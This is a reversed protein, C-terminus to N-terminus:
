LILGAAIAGVVALAAVADRYSLRPRSPALPTVGGRADVAAAFERARRAAVTLAAILIGVAEGVLAKLHRRPRNSTRLKRAAALTRTEDILLPLGRMGIATAFSWEEVPLRLRRLPATLWQLAPAVDALPTTWSVLLGAAIMLVGISTARLADLLAGIGIVLGGVHVNPPGGALVGLGIGAALAVVFWRPPVPRASWPIRGVLCAVGLVAALAAIMAWQPSVALAVGIAALAVLKTPAALDHLWSERPLVRFLHLGQARRRRPRTMTAPTAARVRLPNSDAAVRGDELRIRRDAFLETGDDDHSIVIVTVRRTARLDGLIAGLIEVGDADLGAFPEDLILV